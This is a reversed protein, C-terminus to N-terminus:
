NGCVAVGTRGNAMDDASAVGINGAALIIDRDHGADSLHVKVSANLELLQRHTIPTEDAMMHLHTESIGTTGRVPNLLAAVDADPASINGLHLHVPHRLEGETGSLAVIILATGDKKEKFTVTGDIPYGSGAMLPYVSENGTFDSGNKETEQCAVFLALLLGCAVFSKM